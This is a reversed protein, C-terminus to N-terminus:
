YSILHFLFANWSSAYQGSTSWIPVPEKMSGRKMSGRECFRGGNMAGGERCGGEGFGGKRFGGGWPCIGIFVNGEQLKTQQRYIYRIERTRKLLNLCHCSCCHGRYKM